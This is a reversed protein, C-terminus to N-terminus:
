EMHRITLLLRMSIAVRNNECLQKSFLDRYLHEHDYRCAQGYFRVLLVFRYRKGNSHLISGVRGSTILKRPITTRNEM